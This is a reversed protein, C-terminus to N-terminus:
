SAPSSSSSTWGGALWPVGAHGAVVLLVAVARLGEIDTRFGRGGPLASPPLSDRQSPLRRAPRDLAAINRVQVWRAGPGCTM